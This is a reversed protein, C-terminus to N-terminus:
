PLPGIGRVQCSVLMGSLQVIEVGKAVGEGGPEDLVAVRQVLDPPKQALRAGLRGLDVGVRLRLRHVVHHILEVDSTRYQNLLLVDTYKIGESVVRSRREVILRFGTPKM